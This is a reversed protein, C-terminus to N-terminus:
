RPYLVRMYSRGFVVCAGNVFMLLISRAISSLIWLILRSKAIPAESRVRPWWNSIPAFSGTRVAHMVVSRMFAAMGRGVDESTAADRPAERVAEWYLERVGSRDNAIISGASFKRYVTLPRNLYGLAGHRALELHVRYDLFREPLELIARKLESRYLVSSHILFNGHRLLRAADIRMPQPNNFLGAPCGVASIVFANTFVAPCQPNSALFALQAALKGPLWQDDGDLHAVFDGRALRLLARLNLCGRGLRKQHRIHRILQPYSRVLKAM